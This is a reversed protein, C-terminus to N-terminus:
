CAAVGSEAAGFAAIIFALAQLLRARVLRSEAEVFKIRARGSDPM